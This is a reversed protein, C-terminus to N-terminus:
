TQTSEPLHQAYAVPNYYTAESQTRRYTHRIEPVDWVQKVQVLAQIM